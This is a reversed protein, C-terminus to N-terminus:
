RRKLRRGTRKPREWFVPPGRLPIKPMVPALLPAPDGWPLLADPPVSLFEAALILLPQDNENMDVWSAGDGAGGLVSMMEGPSLDLADALGALTKDRMALGGLVRRRINRRQEYTFDSSIALFPKM